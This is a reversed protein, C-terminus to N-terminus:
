IFLIFSIGGPTTGYITGGVSQSLNSVNQANDKSIPIARSYSSQPQPDM